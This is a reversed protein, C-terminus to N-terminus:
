CVCRQFRQSRELFCCEKRVHVYICVCVCMRQTDSFCLHMKAKWTLFQLTFLVDFFVFCDICVPFSPPFFFVAILVHFAFQSIATVVQLDMKWIYLASLPDGTAAVMRITILTLFPTLIRMAKLYREKSCNQLLPFANICRCQHGLWM